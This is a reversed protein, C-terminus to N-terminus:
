HAGPMNSRLYDVFAGQTPAGNAVSSMGVSIAAKIYGRKARRLQAASVPESFSLTLGDSFQIGHCGDLPAHM